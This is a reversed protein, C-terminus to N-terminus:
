ISHCRVYQLNPMALRTVFVKRTIRGRWDRVYRNPRAESILGGEGAGEALYHSDAWSLPAAIESSYSDFRLVRGLGKRIPPLNRVVGLHRVRSAQQIRTQRDSVQALWTCM